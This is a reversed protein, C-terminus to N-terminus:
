SGSDVVEVILYSIERNENGAYNLFETRELSDEAIVNRAEETYLEVGNEPVFKQLVDEGRQLLERVRYAGNSSYKYVVSVWVKENM